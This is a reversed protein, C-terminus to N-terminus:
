RQGSRDLTNQIYDQLEDEPANHPICDTLFGALELRYQRVIGDSRMVSGDEWGKYLPDTVIIIQAEIGGPPRIQLFYDSGDPVTIKQCTEPRSCDGLLRSEDCPMSASSNRCLKPVNGPSNCLGLLDDKQQCPGDSDRLFTITWTYGGNRTNVESRSVSVKGVNALAELKEEM